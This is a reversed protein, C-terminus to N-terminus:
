SYNFRIQTMGFFSKLREHYFGGVETPPQETENEITFLDNEFAKLNIIKRRNAKGEIKILRDLLNYEDNALPSAKFIINELLVKEEILKWDKNYNYIKISDIKNNYDAPLGRMFLEEKTVGSYPDRYTYKISKLKGNKYYDTDEWFITDSQKKEFDSNNEQCFVFTSQLLLTYIFLKKM